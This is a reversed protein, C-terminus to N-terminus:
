QYRPGAPVRTGAPVRLNIIFRRIKILFTLTRHGPLQCRLNLIGQYVPISTRDYVLYRTGAPVLYRSTGPVVQPVVM